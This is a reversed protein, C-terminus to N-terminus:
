ILGRRFELQFKFQFLPWLKFYRPGALPLLASWVLRFLNEILNYFILYFHFDVSYIFIYPQETNSCDPCEIHYYLVIMGHWDALECVLWCSRIRDWRWDEWAQSVKKEKFYASHFVLLCADTRTASHTLFLSTRIFSSAVMDFGGMQKNRIPEGFALM